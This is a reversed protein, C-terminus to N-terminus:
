PGRPGSPDAGTAGQHDVARWAHQMTRTTRDYTWFYGQGPQDHVRDIALNALHCYLLTGVGGHGIVAVDPGAAGGSSSPSAASEAPNEAPTETLVDALASVVREQASSAMEAAIMAKTEDSSIVQGITATWPQAAMIRARREGEPSLTWRPVPVEPDILVNPHSIYRLLSM